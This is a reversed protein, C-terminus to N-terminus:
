AAQARPGRRVGADSRPKRPTRLLPMVAKRFTAPNAQIAAVFEEITEPAMGRPTLFNVLGKAFAQHKEEAKLAAEHKKAEGKSEFREGDSTVYEAKM